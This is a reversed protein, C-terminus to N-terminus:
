HTNLSKRMLANVEAENTMVTRLVMLRRAESSDDLICASRLHQAKEILSICEAEAAMLKEWDSDLAAGLMIESIYTIQQYLDLLKENM